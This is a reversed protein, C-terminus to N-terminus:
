GSQNTVDMLPFLYSSHRLQEDENNFDSLIKQITISHLFPFVKKESLLDGSPRWKFVVLKIESVEGIYSMKTWPIVSFLMPLEFVTSLDLDSPGLWALSVYKACMMKILTRPTLIIVWSIHQFDCTINHQVNKYSATNVVNVEIEYIDYFIHYITLKDCQFYFDLCM